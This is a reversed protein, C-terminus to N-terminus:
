ISWYEPDRLDHHQSYEFDQLDVSIIAAAKPWWLFVIPVESILMREIQSYLARRTPRDYASTAKRALEDYNPNCWRSYNHGAPAVQACTFRVSDDPDPGAAFGSVALQFQGSPLLGGAAAPAFMTNAQVPKLALEIGVDHLMAQILLVISDGTANGAGYTLTVTLRAGSKVAIGDSALRWGAQTLLSRSAAPNFQQPLSRDAAWMDQPINGSAPTVLDHM